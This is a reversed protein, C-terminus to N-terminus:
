ATLVATRRAYGREELLREYLEELQDAVVDWSFSSLARERGAAGMRRALDPDELLQDLAGCFHTGDGDHDVLLGQVGQQMLLQFGSIQSAVVPVGSSMAELLVMGFSALHCPTCLVDSSALYRPRLQDVRGEFLVDDRLHAPVSREHVPRLPGDGLVVLRVDNRRERLLTFARLMEKLGNRPDFRGVFLINRKEGNLHALPEADPSFFSTDIGNPIVDFDLMPFYPQISDVVASSVAVRADLRAFVIQLLRRFLRLPKYGDPVVSHITGVTVRARSRMIATIPLMPGFPNHVHLVDFPHEAFARGVQFPLRPGVTLLTESANIFFPYARGVRVVEFTEPRPPAHDVSKPTVLLKPTILTVDHGRRALETAQGYAHETIGGLQPYYYDTVIAIRM